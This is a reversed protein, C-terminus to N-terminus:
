RNEQPRANKWSLALQRLQEYEVCERPIWICGWMRTGFPGYKSLILAPPRLVSRSVEKVTRLEDRIITRTFFGYNATLADDCVRLEYHRFAKTAFTFLFAFLVGSVLGSLLGYGFNWVYTETSNRFWPFLSLLASLAAYLLTLISIHLAKTKFSEKRIDYEIRYTGTM